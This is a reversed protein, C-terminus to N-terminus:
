CVSAIAGFMLQQPSLRVNRTENTEPICIAAHPTLRTQATLLPVINVSAAM